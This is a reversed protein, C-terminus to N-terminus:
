NSRNAPIQPFSLPSLEFSPSLTSSTSPPSTSQCYALLMMGVGLATSSMTLLIVVSPRKRITLSIKFPEPPPATLPRSSLRIINSLKAITSRIPM